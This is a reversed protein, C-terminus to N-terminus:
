DILVPAVKSKHQSSNYVNTVLTVFDKLKYPITICEQAGLIKCEEILKVDSVLTLVLIKSEPYNKNIEEIVHMGDSKSLSIDVILLDPKIVPYKEIAEYGNDTQFVIEYNISTLLKKASWCPKKSNEVIMVRVM